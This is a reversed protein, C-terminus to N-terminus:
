KKRENSEMLRTLMFETSAVSWEMGKMAEGRSKAHGLYYDYQWEYGAVLKTIFEGHDDGVSRLLTIISDLLEVEHEPMKSVRKRVLKELRGALIEARVVFPMPSSTAIDLVKKGENVAKYGDIFNQKLQADLLRKAAAKTEEWTRTNETEKM